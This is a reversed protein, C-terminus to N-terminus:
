DNFIKKALRMNFIFTHPLELIKPISSWDGGSIDDLLYQWAYNRKRNDNKIQTEIQKIEVNSLMEKEDPSLTEDEYSEFLESYASLLKERYKFALEITNYVETIAIDNFLVKRENPSYLYPEFEVNGWKDIEKQRYLIACIKQFDNALIAADIDIWESLSLKSIDKYSYKLIETNFETKPITNIWNIKKYAKIIEQTSMNDWEDSDTLYCLLELAVNIYGKTNAKIDIIEKYEEVSIDEWSEQYVKM